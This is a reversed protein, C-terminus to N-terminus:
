SWHAGFQIRYLLERDLGSMKADSCFIYLCTPSRYERPLICGCGDRLFGKDSDYFEAMAKVTEEDLGRDEKEWYGFTSACHMCCGNRGLVKGRCIGNKFDCDYDVNETRKALERYTEPDYGRVRAEEKPVLSIGQRSLQGKLAEYKVTM